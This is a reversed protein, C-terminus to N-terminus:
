SVREHSSRGRANAAGELVGDHSADVVLICLQLLLKIIEHSLTVMKQLSYFKEKQSM